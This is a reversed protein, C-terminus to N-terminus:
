KPFLMKVLLSLILTSLCQVDKFSAYDLFRLDLFFISLPLGSTVNKKLHWLSLGPEHSTAEPRWGVLYNVLYLVFFFFFLLISCM